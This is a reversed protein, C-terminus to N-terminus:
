RGLEDARMLVEADLFIVQVGESLGAFEVACTEGGGQVSVVTGQAGAKLVGIGTKVDRVVCVAEHEALSRAM